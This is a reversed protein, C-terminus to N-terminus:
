NKQNTFASVTKISNLPTERKIQPFFIQARLTFLTNEISVVESGVLNKGVIGQFRFNHV